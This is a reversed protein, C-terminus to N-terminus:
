ELRNIVEELELLSSDIMAKETATLSRNADLAVANIEEMSLVLPFVEDTWVDSEIVAGVGEIRQVLSNLSLVGDRYDSILRRLVAIQRAFFDNM